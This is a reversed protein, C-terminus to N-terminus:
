YSDLFQCVHFPESGAVDTNAVICVRCVDLYPSFDFGPAAAPCGTLDSSSAKSSM